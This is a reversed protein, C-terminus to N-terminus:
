WMVFERETGPGNKWEHQHETSSGLSSLPLKDRRVWASTAWIWFEANNRKKEDIARQLLSKLILNKEM